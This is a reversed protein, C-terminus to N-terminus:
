FIWSGSRSEERGLSFLVQDPKVNLKQIVQTSNEKSEDNQGNGRGTVPAM